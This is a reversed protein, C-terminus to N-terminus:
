FCAMGTVVGSWCHLWEKVWAMGVLKLDWLGILLQERGQFVHQGPEVVVVVVLDFNYSPGLIIDELCFTFERKQSM